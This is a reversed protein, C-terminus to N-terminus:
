KRHSISTYFAEIDQGGLTTGMTEITCQVAIPLDISTDISARDIGELGAKVNLTDQSTELLLLDVGGRILGRAQVRYSEVLDDWTVGGTVSIAKTTPGMSGIVFRPKDVTSFQKAEQVANQAALMSIEEARDELSYEALVLPTSGFSNTEIMDAGAELFKHHIDRILGPRTVNLFENCGEYQNGGFDESSLSLDQITTGMAGDLVLIREDILNSLTETRNNEIM